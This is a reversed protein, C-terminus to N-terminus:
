CARRRALAAEQLQGLVVSVEVGLLGAAVHWQLCSHDQTLSLANCCMHAFARGCLLWDYPLEGPQPAKVWASVCVLVLQSHVHGGIHFGDGLRGSQSCTM